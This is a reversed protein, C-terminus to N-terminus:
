DKQSLSQKKLEAYYAKLGSAVRKWVSSQSDLHVGFLNIMETQTLIDRQYLYLLVHFLQAVTKHPQSRRKPPNAVKPLLAASSAAPLAEVFNRIAFFPHNDGASWGELVELLQEPEPSQGRAALVPALISETVLEFVTPDYWAQSDMLRQLSSGPFLRKKLRTVARKSLEAPRQRREAEVWVLLAWVLDGKEQRSLICLM